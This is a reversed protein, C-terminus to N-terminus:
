KILSWGFCGAVWLVAILGGWRAFRGFISLDKDRTTMMAMAFDMLLKSLILKDM